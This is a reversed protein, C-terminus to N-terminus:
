CAYDYRRVVWAGYYPDWVRRTGVCQGYGYYGDYYGNGYYGDYYGDGYYYRHPSAIAAGLALGALGAGVGIAVDNNHHNHWRWSQAQAPAAGAAMTGALTLAALGTTLLKRM